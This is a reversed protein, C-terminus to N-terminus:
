WLVSEIEVGSRFRMPGPPKCISVTVFLWGTAKLVRHIEEITLRIGEILNHYIVQIAIVVDFLEDAWPIATMDACVLNADLDAATLREQALGLGTRANDLGYM